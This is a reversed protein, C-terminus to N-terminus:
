CSLVFCTTNLDHTEAFHFTKKRVDKSIYLHSPNLEKSIDVM